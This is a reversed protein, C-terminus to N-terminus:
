GLKKVRHCRKGRHENFGSMNDGDKTPETTLNQEGESEESSEGTRFNRAYIPISQHGQSQEGESETRFKKEFKVPVRRRETEAESRFNTQDFDILIPPREGSREAEDACEENPEEVEQEDEPCLEFARELTKKASNSRELFYGNTSENSQTPPSWGHNYAHTYPAASTYPRQKFLFIKFETIFNM